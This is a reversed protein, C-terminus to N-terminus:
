SGLRASGGHLPLRGEILTMKRLRFVHKRRGLKRKMRTMAGRFQEEGMMHHYSYSKKQHETIYAETGVQMSEDIERIVIDSFGRSVLASYIEPVDHHRRLDAQLADEFFEYWEQQKLQAHSTM